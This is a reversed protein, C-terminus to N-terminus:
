RHPRLLIWLKSVASKVYDFSSTDNDSSATDALSRQGFGFARKAASHKSIFTEQFTHRGLYKSKLRLYFPIDSVFRPMDHM